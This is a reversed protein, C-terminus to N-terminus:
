SGIDRTRRSKLLIHKRDFDVLVGNIRKTRDDMVEVSLAGVRPRIREVAQAALDPFM